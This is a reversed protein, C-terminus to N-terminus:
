PASAQRSRALLELGRKVNANEPDAQRGRDLAKAAGNLDGACILVSGLGAWGDANGPEADVVTQFLRQAEKCDTARLRSWGLECMVQSNAPEYALIARYQEEGARASDRTALAQALSLRGQTYQPNIAVARRMSALGDAPRGATILAIGLNLHYNPADPKRETAAQFRTIAEATNGESSAIMGLEFEIQPSAPDVLAARATSAKAAEWASNQRQSEALSLWDDATWTTDAAMAAFTEEATQRTAPVSSRLGARVFARRLDKRSPAIIMAERAAKAAQEVHGIELCSKNYSIIADVDRPVQGLYRMYLQAATKHQNAMQMLDALDRLAPAYSSDASVASVYMDRADNFRRSSQYIRGIETLLQAPVAAGCELKAQEFATLAMETSGRQTCIRNFLALRDPDTPDSSMARMAEGEAFDLEGIGEHLLAMAYNYEGMTPGTNALPAAKELIQAATTWQEQSIFQRARGYATNWSNPDLEVARRFETSAKEYSRMRLLVLGLGIRNAPSERGGHNMEWAIAERYLKEADASRNRRWALEALGRRAGAVQCSDKVARQFFAGAAALRYQAVAELGLRYPECGSATPAAARALDSGALTLVVVLSLGACRLLVALHHFRMATM